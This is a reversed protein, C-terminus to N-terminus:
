PLELVHQASSQPSRRRRLNSRSVGEAIRRKGDETWRPVKGTLEEKLHERNESFLQLNEPSNDQKNRNRHHVVEKPDLVRGVLKEMVLRHERVYGHRNAHPHSRQLVLVYGDKDVIRGGKWHNNRPGSTDKNPTWEPM